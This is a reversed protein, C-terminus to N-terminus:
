PPSAPASAESTSFTLRAVNARRCHHAVGGPRPTTERRRTDFPAGRSSPRRRPRYRRSEVTSPRSWCGLLLAREPRRRRSAVQMREEASASTLHEAPAPWVDQSCWLWRGAASASGSAACRPGTVAQRVDLAVAWRALPTSCRAAAEPREYADARSLLQCFRGVHLGRSEVHQVKSSVRVSCCSGSHLLVLLGSRCSRQTM